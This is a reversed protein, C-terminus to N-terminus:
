RLKSELVSTYKALFYNQKNLSVVTRINSIAEIAIKSATEIAQNDSSLQSSVIMTSIFTGIILLPMLAITLSSLKWNIILGIIISSIITSLAQCIVSM